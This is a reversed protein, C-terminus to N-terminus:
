YLVVAALLAIATTVMPLAKGKSEISKEADEILRKLRELYIETASVSERFSATELFTIWEKIMKLDEVVLSNAAEGDVASCLAAGEHSERLSLRNKRLQNFFESSASYVEKLKKLRVEERSAYLKGTLFGASVILVAGFIKMMM